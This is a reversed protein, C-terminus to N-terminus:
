EIALAAALLAAVRNHATSLLQKNWKWFNVDTQLVLSFATEFQQVFEAQGDITCNAHALARLRRTREINDNVEALVRRELQHLKTESLAFCNDVTQRMARLYYLVLPLQQTSMPREHELRQLAQQFARNHRDNRSHLSIRMETWYECTLREILDFLQDVDGVIGIESISQGIVLGVDVFRQYFHSRSRLNDSAMQQLVVELDDITHTPCDLQTLTLVAAVFSALALLSVSM